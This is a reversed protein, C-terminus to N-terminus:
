TDSACIKQFYRPFLLFQEYHVIEGKEGCRKRGNKCLKEGYEDWKSHNDAFVKLKSSNLIQRKPFPHLLSTCGVDHGRSEVIFFFGARERERERESAVGALNLLLTEWLADREQIMKTSKRKVKEM